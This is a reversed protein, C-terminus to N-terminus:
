FVATSCLSARHANEGEEEEEEKGSAGNWIVTGGEKAITKAGKASLPLAIDARM